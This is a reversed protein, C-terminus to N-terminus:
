RFVKKHMYIKAGDSKLVACSACHDFHAHTLLVARCVLSNDALTKEILDTEEGPDIILADSNESVIYTNEVVIGNQLKVIKM